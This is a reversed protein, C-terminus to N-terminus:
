VNMVLLQRVLYDHRGSGQPSRERKVIFEAEKGNRQKLAKFVAEYSDAAVRHEFREFLSVALFGLKDDLALARRLAAPAM